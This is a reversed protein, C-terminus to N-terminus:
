RGALREVIPAFPEAAEGQVIVYSLGYRERRQELTEAIEDVTGMLFHPIDLVVEPTTGLAAAVPEAMARRDNTINCLFILVSLEVQDFRDGAAEKVWAMKEDTQEATGTLVLESSVAGHALNFNVNVIDAERGAITLMRKAGGGLLLPLPKQVPKPKGDLETIRYHKGEFSFPGDGFLGRCIQLAELMRDIRLGPPDYPIGTADYDSREWGAGLGFDLRGNSLVDLTAVEKALVAPHRYDNDFVLTGVRLKETAGAAATLAGFVGLQESFHDPLYLTSYGLSEIRRATVAWDDATAAHHEQVAFRFPRTM